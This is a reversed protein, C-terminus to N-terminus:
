IPWDKQLEPGIGLAYLDAELESYRDNFIENADGTWDNPIPTPSDVTYTLVYGPASSDDWSLSVSLKAIALAVDDDGEGFRDAVYKYDYSFQFSDGQKLSRLYEDEDQFEEGTSYNQFPM